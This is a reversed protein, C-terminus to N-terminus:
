WGIIATLDNDTAERVGVLLTGGPGTAVGSVRGPPDLVQAPVDPGGVLLRGDHLPLAFRGAPGPGAPGGRVAAGDGSADWRRRGDAADLLSMGGLRHAVVVAGRGADLPAVEPSGAGELPARWREAGSDSALAHAALDGAVAVALPPGGGAPVVLGPGSVGGPPLDATWRRRGSAPDVAVMGAARGNGSSWTAVVLGATGAVPGLSPGPLPLRWAETGREVDIGVLSGEWTSVVALSGAVVPTNAREGLAAEWRFAGTAREFAALGEETPVLVADPTLRPAVDRLRARDATWRPRGAGDLLVLHSHGYTVAVGAEDAAPMGVYSPPPAVWRWTTRLPEARPHVGDTTRPGGANSCGAIALTAGVVVPALRSLSRRPATM